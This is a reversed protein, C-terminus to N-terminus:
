MLCSPNRSMTKKKKKSRQCQPRDRGGDGKGRCLSHLPRGRPMKSANFRPQVTPIAFGYKSPGEGRSMGWLRHAIQLPNPPHQLFRQDPGCWRASPCIQNKQPAERINWSGCPWVEPPETPECPSHVPMLLGFGLEWRSSGQRGPPRPYTNQPYPSSQYSAPTSRGMSTTSALMIHPHTQHILSSLRTREPAFALRNALHKPANSPSPSSTPPHTALNTPSIINAGSVTPRPTGDRARPDYPHDDHATERGSRLNSLSPRYDYAPRTPRPFSASSYLRNTRPRSQSPRRMSPVEVAEWSSSVISLDHSSVSPYSAPEHHRSRIQGPPLTHSEVARLTLRRAEATKIIDELKDDMKRNQLLVYIIILLCVIMLATLGAILGLTLPKSWPEFCNCLDLFCFFCSWYCM